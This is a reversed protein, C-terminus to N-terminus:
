RLRIHGWPAMQRGTDITAGEDTTRVSATLRNLAVGYARTFPHLEKTTEATLAWRASDGAQVAYFFPVRGHAHQASAGVGLLVDFGSRAPPVSRPAAEVPLASTALLVSLGAAMLTRRVLRSPM